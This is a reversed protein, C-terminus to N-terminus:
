VSNSTLDSSVFLLRESTTRYCVARFQRLNKRCLWRWLNSSHKQGEVPQFVVGRSCSIFVASIDGNTPAQCHPLPCKTAARRDYDGNNASPRVAFALIRAKKGASLKPQGKKRISMARCSSSATPRVRNHHRLSEEAPRAARFLGLRIQVVTSPTFPRIKVQIAGYGVSNVPTLDPLVPYVTESVTESIM